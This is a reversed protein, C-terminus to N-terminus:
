APVWDFRWTPLGSAENIGAGSKAFGVKEYFAIARPNAQNVLLYLGKPSLRKADAILAQAVGAGWDRHAVALQDIYGDRSRVTIVGRASETRLDLAVRVRTGDRSYAARQGILWDRRAEFDIEPATRSWAEVWLDVVSRWNDLTLDAIRVVADASM